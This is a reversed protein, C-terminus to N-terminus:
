CRACRARTTDRRRRRALDAARCLDLGYDAPQPDGDEVEGPRVDLVTFPGLPTPEDWGERATSSSPASSTCARVLTERWSSRADAPQVRRHAPVAAGRSQDAARPHQVGHARGDGARVPAIAKM